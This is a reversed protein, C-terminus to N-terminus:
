KKVEYGRKEFEQIILDLDLNKMKAGMPITMFRGATALMAPSLSEFGLNKMIEMVEPHQKCLENVNKNLDIIKEMAFRGIKINLFACVGNTLYLYGGCVSTFLSNFLIIPPIIGNSALIYDSYFDLGSLSYSLFASTLIPQM